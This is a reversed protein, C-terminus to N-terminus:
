RSLLAKLGLNFIQDILGLVLAMGLSVGIVLLTYNQTQNKTPWAVKKLEEIAEKVYATVKNM